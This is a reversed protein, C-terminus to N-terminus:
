RSGDSNRSSSPIPLELPVCQTILTSGREVEWVRVEDYGVIVFVLSQQEYAAERSIRKWDRKDHSSPTPDREPHSHWEGLYNRTQQSEKWAADVREQAPRRARRFSFRRRQDNSTPETAEDILIDDCREVLRGLLLGGGELIDPGVQRARHLVEMVPAALKVLGGGPRRVILETPWM